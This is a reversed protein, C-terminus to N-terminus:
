KGSGARGAAFRQRPRVVAAPDGEATFTLTCNVAVYAEEVPLGIENLITITPAPAARVAAWPWLLAWWRM